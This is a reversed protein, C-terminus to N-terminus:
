MAAIQRLRDATQDIPALSPVVESIIPGTYNVARLERNIAAFDVEGDLLPTWNGKLARGRWDKAHVMRIHPGVIRAWHHPYQFIAMNGPDFYFGVWKSAVEDLFRRMELPSFLFGNWIFEVALHVRHQACAGALERLAAVANDYAQDYYLDPSLKGLTTLACGAGLKASTELGQRVQEIGTRQAEDDALLNGTVHTLTTSVITLGHDDALARIRDIEDDGLETHVPGDPKLALEVVDYGADAANALFTELPDKGAVLQTIGIQM